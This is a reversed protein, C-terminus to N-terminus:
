GKVQDSKGDDRGEALARLEGVEIRAERLGAMAASLEAETQALRGAMEAESKELSSAARDRAEEAEHLARVVKDFERVDEPGARLFRHVAWRAFWGMLFAAFVLIALALVLETQNM